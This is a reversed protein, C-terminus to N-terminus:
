RAIWRYWLATDIDAHRTSEREALYIRTPTIQYSEFTKGARGYSLQISRRGGSGYAVPEFGTPRVM